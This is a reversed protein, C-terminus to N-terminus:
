KFAIRPDIFAYGVDVVLNMVAVLGAYLLTTGMIMPYDRASASKVFYAGIGPINCITEVFFSGTIIGALMIGALTIVPIMANRLVHRLLVVRPQLGKAKATRVYDQRIVELASARSYRAFTASPGLALAMVPIIIRKDLVGGWGGTPVLHLSIALVYIAISVFVYSPTSIGVVAVFMSVYDIWTNQKLAAIVGLSNGVIAGIIIAILGIQASVPFFELIIENVSRYTQQYSPGFDGRLVIGGLYDVYQKWLPDNLHYKRNLNEIAAPLLPKENNDWPGGPTAHMIVFTITYVVFMTPILLLIRRIIYRTM